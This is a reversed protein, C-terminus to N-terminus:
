RIWRRFNKYHYNDGYNHEDDCGDYDDLSPCHGIQQRQIEEFFEYEELGEEDLFTPRGQSEHNGPTM